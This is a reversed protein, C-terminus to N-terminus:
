VSEIKTKELITVTDVHTVCFGKQQVDALIAQLMKTSAINKFKPDKDSFWDGIDGAGTAGLIGDIIAHLLADGDSHGLPGKEFPIHIGGLLLKRKEVLRHTDRGFGTRILAFQNLYAEALEFDKYTTIESEL